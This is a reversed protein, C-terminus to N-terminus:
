ERCCPVPIVIGCSSIFSRNDSGFIMWPNGHVAGRDCINFLMWFEQNGGDTQVKGEEAEERKEEKKKEDGGVM